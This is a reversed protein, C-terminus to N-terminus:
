KKKFRIKFKTIKESLKDYYSSRRFIIGGVGFLIIWLIEIVVNFTTIKVGLLNLLFVVMPVTAISLALSLTIRELWDIEKRNYFIFTLIFGPLFLVYVSGFIIRIIQLLTM